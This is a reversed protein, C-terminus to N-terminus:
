RWDGYSPQAQWLFGGWEFAPLWPGSLVSLIGLDEHRVMRARATACAERVTEFLTAGDLDVGPQPTVAVLIANPAQAAPANFRMALGATRERTPVVEAFSDIVSWALTTAAQLDVGAPAYAVALHPVEHSTRQPAGLWPAGPHTSAAALPSGGAAVRAHQFADLRALPPRVAAVVELWTRDIEPRGDDDVPEPQLEFQVTALPLAM